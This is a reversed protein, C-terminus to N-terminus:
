PVFGGDAHIVTGNVAASDAGCLWTVVAAVENPALLRGLPQHDAFLEVTDLGYLRATETLMDTRTSGPSVATATIGSGRLDHALGKILGVVAHMAANYGALQTMGHHAASSALTVFRGSRPRPRRLLAPVAARALNAVGRVDIDFLAEWQRDDMDWLPKGGSMVAAAGVAADLRGFSSAAFAVASRLAAPDQVDAVVPLVTDPHAEALATLQRRTALPYDLRPDDACRDVAVVSWGAWALRHVVAAGIGRTAGTVVAVRATM